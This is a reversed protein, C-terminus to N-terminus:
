SQVEKTGHALALAEILMHHAVDISNGVTIVNRLIALAYECAEVLQAHSNVARCILEADEFATDSPPIECIWKRNQRQDDGLSVIDRCGPKHSNMTQWPLPTHAVVPAQTQPKNM